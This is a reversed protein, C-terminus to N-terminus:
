KMAVPDTTNIYVFSEAQKFGLKEAEFLIEHLSSKQALEQKLVGNEREVKKVEEELKAVENGRGALVTTIFLQFFVTIGLTLLVIKERKM